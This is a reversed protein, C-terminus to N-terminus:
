LDSFQNGEMFDEYFVFLLVRAYKAPNFWIKVDPHTVQSEIAKTHKVYIYCKSRNTITEFM